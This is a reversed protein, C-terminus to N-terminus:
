ITGKNYTEPFTSLEHTDVHICKILFIVNELMITVTFCTDTPDTKVPTTGVQVSETIVSVQKDYLGESHFM